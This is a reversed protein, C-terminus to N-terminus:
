RQMTSSRKKREMSESYVVRCLPIKQLVWFIHIPKQKLTAWIRTVELGPKNSLGPWYSEVHRDAIAEFELFAGVKSVFLLHQPVEFLSQGVVYKRILGALFYEKNRFKEPCLRMPAPIVFLGESKECSGYTLLHPCLCISSASISLKKKRAVNKRCMCAM